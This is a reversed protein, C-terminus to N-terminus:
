EWPRGAVVRNVFARLVTDFQEALEDCTGRWLRVQSVHDPNTGKVLEEHRPKLVFNQHVVANRWVNPQELKRRRAANGADAANVEALFSLGFRDFDPGL